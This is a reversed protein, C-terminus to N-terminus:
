FVDYKVVLIVGIAVEVFLLVYVIDTVKLAIQLLLVYVNCGTRAIDDVVPLGNLEGSHKALNGEVTVPLTVTFPLGPEVPTEVSSAWTTYPEGLVIVLVTDPLVPVIETVEEFVLKAVTDTLPDVIVTVITPFGSLLQM